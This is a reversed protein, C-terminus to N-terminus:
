FTGATSDCTNTLLVDVAAFLHPASSSLQVHVEVIRGIPATQIAPLLRMDVLLPGGPAIWL